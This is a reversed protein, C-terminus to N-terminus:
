ERWKRENMDRWEREYIYIYTKIKTDRKWM